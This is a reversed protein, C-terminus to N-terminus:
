FMLIMLACLGLILIEECIFLAITSKNHSPSSQMEDLLHDYTINPDIKKM